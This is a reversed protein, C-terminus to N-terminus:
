LSSPLYNSPAILIIRTRIGDKEAFDYVYGRKRKKKDSATYLPFIDEVDNWFSLSESLNIIKGFGDALFLFAHWAENMTRADKGEAASIDINSIDWEGDKIIFDKISTENTKTNTNLVSIKIEM